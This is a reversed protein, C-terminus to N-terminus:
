LFGEIDAPTPLAPIVGVKQTALAGAANAYRMIPDLQDKELATLDMYQRLQTLMAAVFADGAGLTDVVNVIFGDVFGEAFGNTYYCGREGLTVVLLKVGLGLIRKIGQELDADGTVFEWEEESIKVVDAYPMAQWIWRKADTANDWLMLRLNPDYSLRAGGARASQIAHLTAERSPLHSLSVSGYHFLEASQVYDINIENPSLQIDAGPHRYFTIDKMGDSRTAVFALTTRSGEGSILYDTNVSNQQLTERLFDGFADAGVKGIFGADVGLKALGVAVNAPAGGPAKVFGPAEALTVDPTTSVFDILLEGICLAKPM